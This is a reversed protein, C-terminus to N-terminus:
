MYILLFVSISADPCETTMLVPISDWFRFTSFFIVVKWPAHFCAEQYVKKGAELFSVWMQGM